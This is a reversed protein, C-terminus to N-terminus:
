YQDGLFDKKCLRYYASSIERDEAIDSVSKFLTNLIQCNTKKNKEILRLISNITKIEIEESPRGCKLYYPQIIVSKDILQLLRFTSDWGGTWLINIKKM